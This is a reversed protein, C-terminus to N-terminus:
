EWISARKAADHTKEPSYDPHFLHWVAMASWQSGRAPVGADNLKDAIRQYSLRRKWRKIKVMWQIENADDELHVGDAALKKGYPLHRSVREGRAKKHAMADRVREGLQRRFFEAYEAQMGTSLKEAATKTGIPESMSFIQFPSKPGFYTNLLTETDARDRSLRDLRDILVADARGDDLYAFARKLGPRNKISKGSIGEDGEIAVLELGHSAAYSRMKARQADLSVGHEAQMDTSVRVYGVTRIRVKRASRAM